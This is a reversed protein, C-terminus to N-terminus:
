WLTGQILDEAAIELVQFIRDKFVPKEMPRNCIDQVQQPELKGLIAFRARPWYSMHKQTSHGPIPEGLRALTQLLLAGSWTEKTQEDTFAEFIALACHKRNRQSIERYHAWNRHNVGHRWEAAHRYLVPGSKCKSEAYVTVRNNSVEYDPLILSEAARQM